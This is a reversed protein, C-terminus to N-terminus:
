VYLAGFVCTKQHSGTMTVVPRIGKATWMKRRILSDHIFISEDAVAITFGAPTHTLNHRQDKKSITKRKNQHLMSMCREQFKPVSVGSTYYDISMIFRM